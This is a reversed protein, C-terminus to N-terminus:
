KLNIQLKRNVVFVHKSAILIRRPRKGALVQEAQVSVAV